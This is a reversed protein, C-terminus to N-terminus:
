SKSFNGFQKGCRSFWMANEGAINLPELKEINEGVCRNKRKKGIVMSPITKIQMEM